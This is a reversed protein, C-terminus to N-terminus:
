KYIISCFKLMDRMRKKEGRSGTKRIDEERDNWMIKYYIYINIYPDKFVCIDSYWLVTKCTATDM